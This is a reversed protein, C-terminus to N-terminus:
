LKLALSGKHCVHLLVFIMIDQKDLRPEDGDILCLFRGTARDLGSRADWGMVGNKPLTVTVVNSHKSAIDRVIVPTNDNSDKLYNGVMVMEWPVNLKDLVLATKDVFDRIREGAKYCLVVVSLEIDM